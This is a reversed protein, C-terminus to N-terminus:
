RCGRRPHHIQETVAEVYGPRQHRQGHGGAEHHVVGGDCSSFMERWMSLPRAARGPLAQEARALDPERRLSDILKEGIATNRGIRSIPPM